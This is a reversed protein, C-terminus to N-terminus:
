PSDPQGSMGSDDGDEDDIVLLRDPVRQPFVQLLLLEFHVRCGRGLFRQLLQAEVLDRQHQGIDAHGAGAAHVEHRLRELDLGIEGDQHEGGDIVCGARREAHLAARQVIEGLRDLECVQAPCHLTGELAALHMELVPMQVLPELFLDRRAGGLQLAFSMPQLPNRGRCEFYEDVGELCLVRVQPTMRRSHRVQGRIDRGFHTEGFFIDFADPHRSSEVVEPLDPCSVCHNILFPRESGVLKLVHLLMDDDAGLNERRENVEAVDHRHDLAVVLPEIAAAIRISQAALIHRHAPPDDGDGLDVVRERGRAWIM